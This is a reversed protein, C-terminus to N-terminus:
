VKLEKKLENLFRWDTGQAIIRQPPVQDHRSRAPTACPLALHGIPDLSRWQDYPLSRLVELSLEYRSEYGKAELFRAAREPNQARVDTPKLIARLARKTAVPHSEVFNRNAGLMCCFYQSWPRDLTTNVIVKGVKKARVEQPQPPFALFADVKGELFLASVRRTERDEGLEGGHASGNRRLGHHEHAFRM